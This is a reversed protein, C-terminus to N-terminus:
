DTEADIVIRYIEIKPQYKFKKYLTNYNGKRSSINYIVDKSLQLDDAIEPLTKYDKNHICEGNYDLIKCTYNNLKKNLRM